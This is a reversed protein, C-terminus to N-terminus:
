YTRSQREHKARYLADNAAHLVEASASGHEPFSAVGLSFTVPGLIQGEFKLQLHKAREYVQKARKYAVLRSAGPMVIAFEDGGYRSPIDDGRFHELILNSLGDLIVDGAAQGWIYNIKQFDDVDMMIISIKFNTRSARLLERRLTEEMYNRNFLGTVPDRVPQLNMSITNRLLAEQAQQRATIDRINCQVVKENDVPYVNSQFEVQFLKGNKAKLRLGEYRTSESQALTEFAAQSAEIDRFPGAEWLKKELFEERPYGLMEILYPNVDEIVGTKADLMLIGDQATDFLRRYRLEPEKLQQM